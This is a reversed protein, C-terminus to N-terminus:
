VADVTVHLANTAEFCGDVLGRANPRSLSVDFRIARFTVPGLLIKNNLRLKPYPNLTESALADNQYGKPSRMERSGM